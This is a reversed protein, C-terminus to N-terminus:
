ENESSDNMLAQLLSDQLWGLWTYVAYVPRMPDDPKLLELTEHSNEEVNLRVGLALRIDNIGGLWGMASDHDLDVERGRRESAHGRRQQRQSRFLM